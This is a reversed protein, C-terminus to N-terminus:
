AGARGRTLFKRRTAEGGRLHRESKNQALVDQVQAYLSTDVSRLTQTVEKHVTSKSVGFRRATARVTARNEVLYSALLVCREKEGAIYTVNCEGKERLVVLQRM